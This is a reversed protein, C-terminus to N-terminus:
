IHHVASILEGVIPVRIIIHLHDENICPFLELLQKWPGLFKSSELDDNVSGEDAVPISVGFLKLENAPFHDFDPKMLKKIAYKLEGVTNRSDINVPFINQWTMDKAEVACFLKLIGPAIAIIHLYDPSPDNVLVASVKQGILKQHDVLNLNELKSELDDLPFNVMWLVLEKGSPEKKAKIGKRLASVYATKPVQVPFVDDPDDGLILCNVLISM